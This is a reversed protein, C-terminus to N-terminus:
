GGYGHSVIVIIFRRKYIGIYIYIYIKNTRNESSHQNICHPILFLKRVPSNPNFLFPQSLIKATGPVCYSSFINNPFLNEVIRLPCGSQSDERMSGVEIKREMMQTEYAFSM